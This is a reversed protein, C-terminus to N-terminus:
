PLTRAGSPAASWTRKSQVRIPGRRPSAGLPRPIIDVDDKCVRWHFTDKYRRLPIFTHNPTIIIEKERMKAKMIRPNECPIGTLDLVHVGIDVHLVHLHGRRHIFENAIARSTSTSIPSPNTIPEKKMFRQIAADDAVDELIPSAQTRAVGRYLTIPKRIDTQMSKIARKLTSVQSTTWTAYRKDVKSGLGSMRMNAEWSSEIYKCIISQM